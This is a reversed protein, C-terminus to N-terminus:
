KDVSYYSDHFVPRNGATIEVICRACIYRPMGDPYYFDSQDKENRPDLLEFLEKFQGLYQELRECYCCCAFDPLEPKRKKKGM